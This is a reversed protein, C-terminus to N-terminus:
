RSILTLAARVRQESGKLFLSAARSGPQPHGVAEAEGAMGRVLDAGSAPGPCPARPPPPRQSLWAPCSARAAEAWQPTGRAAM